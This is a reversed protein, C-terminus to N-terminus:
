EEVRRKEGRWLKGHHGMVGLRHLMWLNGGMVKITVNMIERYGYSCM